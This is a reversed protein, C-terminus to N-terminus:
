ARRVLTHGTPQYISFDISCSNEPPVEYSSLETAPDLIEIGAATRTAVVWHWDGKRGGWSSVKLITPVQIDGWSRFPRRNLVVGVHSAAASLEKFNSAFPPKGGRKVHLGAHTFAQAAAEYAVNAMMALCAVGCDTRLRQLVKQPKTPLSPAYM